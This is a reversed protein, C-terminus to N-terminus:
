RRHQKGFYAIRNTQKQTKEGSFYTMLYSDEGTDSFYNKDVLVAKFGLKKFFLQTSLNTERVDVSIEVKRGVPYLKLILKNVMKAGFGSRRYDPHIALFIIAFDYKQLEYLMFGVIKKSTLEIVQGVINRSRLYETLEDEFIPNKFSQKIITLVDRMDRRIMWRILYNETKTKDPSVNM